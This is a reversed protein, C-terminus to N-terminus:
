LPWLGLDSIHLSMRLVCQHCPLLTQLGLLSPWFHGDSWGHLWYSSVVNVYATAIRSQGRLLVVICVHFRRFLHWREFILSQWFRLCASPGSSIFLREIGCGVCGCLILPLFSSILLLCLIGFALGSLGEARFFMSGMVPTVHQPVRRCEWPCFPLAFPRHQRLMIIPPLIPLFALVQSGNPRLSPAGFGLGCVLPSTVRFSARPSGRWVGVRLTCVLCLVCCDSPSPLIAGRIWHSLYSYAM